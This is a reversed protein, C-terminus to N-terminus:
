TREPLLHLILDDPLLSLSHQPSSVDRRDKMAFSMGNSVGPLPLSIGRGPHCASQSQENGRESPGGETEALYQAPPYERHGRRYGDQGRDQRYRIDPPRHAM